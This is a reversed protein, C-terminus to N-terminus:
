KSELSFATNILRLWPPLYRLLSATIPVHIRSLSSSELLTKKLLVPIFPNSKDFKSKTINIPHLVPYPPTPPFFRGVTAHLLPAFVATPKLSLISQGVAFLQVMANQLCKSFPIDTPLAHESNPEKAVYLSVVMVEYIM